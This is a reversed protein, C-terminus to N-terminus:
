TYLKVRSKGNTLGANPLKCKNLGVKKEKKREKAKISFYLSLAVGFIWRFSQLKKVISLVHRVSYLKVLNVLQLLKNGFQTWNTFGRGSYRPTRTERVGCSLRPQPKRGKPVGRNIVNNYGKERDRKM